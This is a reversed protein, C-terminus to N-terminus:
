ANESKFITDLFDHKQDVSIKEKENPKTLCSVVVLVIAATLVAPVAVQWTGLISMPVIGFAFLVLVAEGALISSVVGAATSGRWYLAAMIGPTLVAYGTFAWTVIALIAGPPNLAIVCCLIALSFIVVRGIFVQKQESPNKDFYVMHIDKLYMTSITILQAATTSMIAALVAAMVAAGVWPAYFNGLLMPIISDSQKGELGPFVGHGFAGLFLVPVYILIMAFPYFSMTTKLSDPNKAALYKTFLQPFVPVGLAIVMGFSIWQPLSFNGRGLLEPYTALLNNAATVPGGIKFIILLFAAVVCIMMVSGQLLDAYATAKLGGIFVYITIFVLVAVVGVWSPVAGGTLGSIVYGAGIPQVVMYAVTFIILVFLIVNKVAGSGYIDGFLQPATMYQYQRGLLWTRYGILYFFVAALSTTTALYGFFGVGLHYAGGPAGMYAFASINTAFLTFFMVWPGLDRAALFYGESSKSTQRGTIVGILLTFCLYALIVAMAGMVPGSM